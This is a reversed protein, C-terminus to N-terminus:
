ESKRVYVDSAMQTGLYPIGGGSISIPSESFDNSGAQLTQVAAGTGRLVQFSLQGEVNYDSFIFIM